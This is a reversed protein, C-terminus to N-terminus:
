ERQAGYINCVFGGEEKQELRRSEKKKSPKGAHLITPCLADYYKIYKELKTPARVVSVRLSFGKRM